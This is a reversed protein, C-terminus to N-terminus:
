EAEVVGTLNITITRFETTSALLYVELTGYEGTNGTLREFVVESGGGNLAISRTAVLNNLPVVANDPNSSSYSAGKFLIVRSTDIYVGYQEGGISALTRSRADDLVSVVTDVSKELAQRSNLRPLSILIITVLLALIALAILAELMTFGNNTTLQRDNTM